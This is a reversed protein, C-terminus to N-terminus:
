VVPTIHEPSNSQTHLHVSGIPSIKDREAGSSASPLSSPFVIISIRVCVHLCVCVCVCLQGSHIVMCIMSAYSKVADCVDFSCTFGKQMGTVTSTCVHIIYM